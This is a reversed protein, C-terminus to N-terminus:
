CGAGELERNLRSMFTHFLASHFSLAHGPIFKMTIVRSLAPITLSQQTVHHTGSAMVRTHIFYLGTNNWGRHIEGRYLCFSFQADSVLFFPTAVIYCIFSYLGGTVPHPHLCFFLSLGLLEL